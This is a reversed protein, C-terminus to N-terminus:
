SSSSHYVPLSLVSGNGYMVRVQQGLPFIRVSFVRSRFSFFYNLIGSVKNVRPASNFASKEKGTCYNVDGEFFTERPVCPARPFSDSIRPARQLNYLKYVASICLAYGHM